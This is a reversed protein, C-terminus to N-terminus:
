EMRKGPFDLNVGNSMEGVISGIGDLASPINRLDLFMVKSSNSSGIKMGMDLYNQAMLFQLSKASSPNNNLKNAIIEM